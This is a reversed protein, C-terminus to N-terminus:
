YKLFGYYNKTKNGYSEDFKFNGEALVIVTVVSIIIVAVVICVM